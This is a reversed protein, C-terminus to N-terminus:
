LIKRATIRIHYKDLLRKRGNQSIQAKNDSYHFNSIANFYALETTESSLFGNIRDEIMEPIGGVPTCIPICGLSFAEILSIPMGEYHSSLCYADAIALYDAINSRDGILHIYPDAASIEQLRNVVEKERLDGVILLRCKKQDVQENFLQVARILMSQNKVAVVRGLNLLLYEDSRNPYQKELIPLEATTNLEPRGNPILYDTTLKYYNQFTAKGDLSITIPHVKKNKFHMKRVRRLSEFPCEQEARSHITHFFHTDSRNLFTSFNIYEFANTHTNVIDPKQKQLWATLRWLTVLNFSSKKGFSIYQVKESIESVFSKEPSNDGLSLITVQVNDIQTLENCLDVVFREAGGKNLSPIIHVIKMMKM